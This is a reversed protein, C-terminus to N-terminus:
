PTPCGKARKAGRHVHPARLAAALYMHIYRYSSIGLGMLCRSGLAHLERHLFPSTSYYLRYTVIIGHSAVEGYRQTSLSHGSAVPWVSTFKFRGATTHTYCWKGACAIACAQTSPTKYAVNPILMYPYSVNTLRGFCTSRAIVPLSIGAAFVSVAVIRTKRTPSSGNAAACVVIDTDVGVASLSAIVSPACM